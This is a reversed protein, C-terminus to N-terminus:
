TLVTWLLAIVTVLLALGPVGFLVAFMAVAYRDHISLDRWQERLSPRASM